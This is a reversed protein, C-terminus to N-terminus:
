QQLYLFSFLILWIYQNIFSSHLKKYRILALTNNENIACFFSVTDSVTEKKM